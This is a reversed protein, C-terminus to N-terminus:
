RLDTTVILPLRCRLEESGGDIETIVTAENKGVDIDVKSAFTAQGWGLLGALMQGTQGADDDIAQKGLIVLDVAEKQREIVARLAKAVGLPEPSPASEPIEVHIASDAGMALATRLTEVSKPPGITVVKISKVAEKMKERIRVAEEVASLHLTNIVPHENPSPLSCVLKMSHTRNPMSNLSPLRPRSTTCVMSHKVNLDIGTQEPNVRIKVAYDVASSLRYSMSRVIHSFICM